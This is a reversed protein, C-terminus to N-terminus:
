SFLLLNSYEHTYIELKRRHVVKKKVPEVPTKTKKKKEKKEKVEKEEEVEEDDIIITDDSDTSVVTKAPKKRLTRKLPVILEDDTDTM